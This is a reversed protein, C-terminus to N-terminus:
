HKAKHHTALAAKSAFEKGQNCGKPCRLSAPGDKPGDQAKQGTPKSDKADPTREEAPADVVSAHGGAVLNEAEAKALDAPVHALTGYHWAVGCAHVIPVKDFRIVKM